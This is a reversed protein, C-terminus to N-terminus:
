ESEEEEDNMNEYVFSDFYYKEAEAETMTDFSNHLEDIVEEIKQKDYGLSRMANVLYGRVSDNTM